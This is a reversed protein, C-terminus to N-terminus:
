RNNRANHILKRHRTTFINIQSQSSRVRIWPRVIITLSTCNLSYYLPLLKVSLTAIAPLTQIRMNHTQTQMHESCEHLMM